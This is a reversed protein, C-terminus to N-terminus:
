HLVSHVTGFAASNTLIKRRYFNWCCVSVDILVITYGSYKVNNLWNLNILCNFVNETPEM